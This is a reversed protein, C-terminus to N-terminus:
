RNSGMLLSEVKRLEDVTDIEVIQGYNVPHIRLKLEDLHRNVVDDWFLEEFGARGFEYETFAALKIADDKKWFSIGVMNYCDTVNKGVRKIVGDADLEFGWDDSFGETMRGYYCSYDPHNSFISKDSVYLDAECIFCDGLKLIERAVYISSINNVTEYYPNVILEVNNYKDELLDFQKGLYGVVVYIRDIGMQVLGDIITEIMPKGCVPILPKPTTETLPRMRTGMGSAMLIANAM